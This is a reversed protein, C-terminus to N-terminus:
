ILMDLFGGLPSGWALPLIVQGAQTYNGMLTTAPERRKELAQSQNRVGFLQDIVPTVGGRQDTTISMNGLVRTVPQM